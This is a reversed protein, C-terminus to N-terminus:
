HITAVGSSVDGTLDNYGIVDEHTLFTGPLPETDVSSRFYTASPPNGLPAFGAGLDNTAVHDGVQRHVPQHGGGRVRRVALAHVREVQDGRVPLGDTPRHVQEM